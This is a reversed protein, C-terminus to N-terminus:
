EGIAQAAKKGAGMAENLTRKELILNQRPDPAGVISFTNDPTGHCAGGLHQPSSM